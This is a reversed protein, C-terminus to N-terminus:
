NQGELGELIEDDEIKNIYGAFWLCEIGKDRKRKTTRRSRDKSRRKKILEKTAPILGKGFKRVM